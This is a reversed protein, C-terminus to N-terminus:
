LSDFYEAMKRRAAEDPLAGFGAAVNDAM